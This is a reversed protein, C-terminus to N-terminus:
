HSAKPANGDIKGEVREVALCLSRTMELLTKTAELQQRMLGTIGNGLESNLTDRMGEVMTNHRELSACLERMTATNQAIYEATKVDREARAADREMRADEVRSQREFRKTEMERQFHRNKERDDSWKRMAYVIGSLLVGLSSIIALYVETTM